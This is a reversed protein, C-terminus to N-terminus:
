KSGKATLRFPRSGESQETFNAIQEATAGMNLALDKWQTRAAGKANKLLAKWGPGTAGEADGILARLRNEAAQQAEEAAKVTSKAGMITQALQNMEATAIVMPGSSEPYKAKVYDTSEDSADPSPERDAEVYDKWFREAAVCMLGFNVESFDFRYVKLEYGPLLVAVDAAPLGTIGCYWNVQTQVRDPIEEGGWTERQAWWGATKFEAVVRQGDRDALADLTGMFLPNKPHYVIGGPLLKAGTEKGYLGRVVPEFINGREMAESPATQTLGKKELWVKHARGEVLDAVNTGTMGRRRLALEKETLMPLWRRHFTGIADIRLCV